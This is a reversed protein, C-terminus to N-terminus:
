QGGAKFRGYELMVADFFRGAMMNAGKSTFHIYDTTALPPDALVFNQISNKGGMAEYMDWFSCDSELAAGRLADRVPELSPYTVFKGNEKTSMDGPGIVLIAVDPFLVKLYTIERIFAKKYYATSAIYPVVNGGFQLIILGPNQESIMTDLTQRDSKSFELGSSGRMAINDIQVGTEPDFGIGYVRGGKPLSFEFEIKDVVVEPEYEQVKYGEPIAWITDSITDNLHLAIFGSDAYAHMYIKVKTFSSARKGKHFQFKLSPLKDGEPEPVDTFCALMGYCNHELTSDRKGFGTHRTWDGEFSEKFTPNGFYLPIAPVIGCGSGGFVKQFRYRLLSTMRDNEIQSDGYHLIRLLQGEQQSVEAAKFFNYLDFKGKEGFELPHVIQSISDIRAQIISDMNVDIMSDHISDAVFFLTDIDGFEPDDSVTTHQIISDTYSSSISDKRFLDTSSIFQLHFDKGLDIGEKPFVLSIIFLLGFVAAFFVLIRLPKM